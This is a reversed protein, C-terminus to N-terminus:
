KQVVDSTISRRLQGTDILPEESGKIAITLPANDAWFGFGRSAFANQVIQEGKIGLNVYVPKLNGDEIAKMLQDGFYKTEQPMKLDLPMQLFSRRPINLSVSGMEQILGIEANTKEPKNGQSNNLSRNTKQGLIGVRTVYKKGMEEQMKKIKDINLTVSIDKSISIKRSAM